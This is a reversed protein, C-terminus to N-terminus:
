GARRQSPEAAPTASTGPPPIRRAPILPRPGAKVGGRQPIKYDRTARLMDNKMGNAQQIAKVTVHFKKSLGILTEGEKVKHKVYYSPPEIVHRRLLVDYARRGTEQALPNYFRVHLHTAHGKAHRILPPLTDSGDFLQDVWEKDEGRALAFERVLRQVSRDMLILEVDTDTVLTKVFAWTRDRDLNAARAVAYWKSEGPLYYYSVDVDRGSQHSIHPSLHGGRRASIHGIYMMPAGPFQEGVKGLCHALWDVTERTGWAHDPDVLEWATGDPMKVGNYLAGANTYGISMSGLGEPNQALEDEIQRQTWGDLPHKYLTGQVLSPPTEAGDDIEGNDDAGSPEDEASPANQALPAGDSALSPGGDGAAPVLATESGGPSAGGPPPAGLRAGACAAVGLLCISSTFRHLLLM